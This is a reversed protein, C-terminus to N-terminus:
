SLEVSFRNELKKIIDKLEKERTNLVESLEEIDLIGGSNLHSYFIRRALDEELSERIIQHAKELIKQKEQLLIIKEDELEKIKISINDIKSKTNIIINTMEKDPQKKNTNIEYSIDEKRNQISEMRIEMSNGTIGVSLFVSKNLKFYKRDPAALNSKARYSEILGFKELQLLHKLVAQQSIGVEKSLQIFYKPENTLAELIRRRTNNGLLDLLEGIEQNNDIMTM